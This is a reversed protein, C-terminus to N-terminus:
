NRSTKRPKGKSRGRVLLLRVPDMHQQNLYSYTILSNSKEFREIVRVLLRKGEETLCQLKVESKESDEINRVLKRKGQFKQSDHNWKEHM